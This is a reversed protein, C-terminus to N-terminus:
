DILAKDVVEPPIKKQKKIHETILEAIYDSISVGGRFDNIKDFVQETLEITVVKKPIQPKM